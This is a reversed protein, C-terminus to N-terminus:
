HSPQEDKKVADSYRELMEVAKTKDGASQYAGAAQIIAETMDPRLAAALEFSHAADSFQHEILQTRGLWYRADANKPQQQIITNLAASAAAYDGQQFQARASVLPDIATGQHATAAASRKTRLESARLGAYFAGILLIIGILVAIFITSARRKPEISDYSSTRRDSEDPQETTTTAGFDVRIRGPRPAEAPRGGSTDFVRAGVKQTESSSKRAGVGPD